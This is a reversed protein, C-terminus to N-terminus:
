CGATPSATSPPPWARPWAPRRVPRAAGRGPLEAARDAAGAGVRRGLPGRLLARDAAARRRLRPRRGGARDPAPLRCTSRARAAAHHRSLPRRRPDPPVLPRRRDRSGATMCSAKWAARRARHDAEPDAGPRPLHRRDEAARGRGRRSLPQVGYGLASSRWRSCRRRSASRLAVPRRSRPRNAAVGLPRGRWIDALIAQVTAPSATPSRAAGGPLVPPQQRPRTGDALMRAGTAAEAAALFPDWIVWADVAGREFAARADAPPLYVPEIDGYGLGAAELARVLLYHVNSGKNLAVKKGKLDAVSRSRRIRPCWSRRAGRRRRSTASM